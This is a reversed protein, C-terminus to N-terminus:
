FELHRVAAMKFNTNQGYSLLWYHEIESFNQLPLLIAHHYLYGLM